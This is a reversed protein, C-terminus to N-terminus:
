RNALWQAYLECSLQASQGAVVLVGLSDLAFLNQAELSECSEGAVVAALTEALQPRENLTAQLRRLDPYFPSNAALAAQLTADLEGGNQSLAQCALSLLNPRGGVFRTLTSVEPDSLTLRWQGLVSTIQEGNFPELEIPLGVNFPSKNINQPVYLETSYAVILRVQQWVARTKADEHWARLLGFFDDALDQWPFVRDVDDLALVVPDNVQPLLYEEFYSKCCITSGFFDDWYEELQDPIQLSQTVQQCFDHLFRDLDKFAASDLDAFSLYVTKCGEIAASHLLQNTLTTKGMGHSGRIRVLAGPELIAQRAKTEDESRVQYLPSASPLPEGVTASEWLDMPADSTAM